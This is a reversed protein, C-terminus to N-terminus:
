EGETTVLAGDEQKGQQQCDDQLGDDDTTIVVNKSVGTRFVPRHEQMVETNRAIVGDCIANDGVPCGFVIDIAM